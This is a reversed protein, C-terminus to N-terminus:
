DHVYSTAKWLFEIFLALCKVKLVLAFTLTTNATMSALVTAKFVGIRTEMLFKYM